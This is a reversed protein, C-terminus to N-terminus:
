VGKAISTIQPEMSKENVRKLRVFRKGDDNIFYEYPGIFSCLKDLYRKIVQQSCGVFEAGGNMTDALSIMGLDEIIDKFWGRFKPECIVNRQMEVSGVGLRLGESEIEEKRKEEKEILMMGHESISQSRNPGRPHMKRHCSHCLGVWNSGDAPNNEYNDDLHHLERAPRKACDNCLLGDRKTCIKLAAKTKKGSMRPM